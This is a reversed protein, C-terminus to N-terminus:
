IIWFRKSSILPLKEIADISCIAKEPSLGDNEDNGNASVYYKTGKIEYIEETNPSNLIKARLEDAQPELYGTAPNGYNARLKATAIDTALDINIVNPNKM